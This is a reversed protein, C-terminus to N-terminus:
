GRYRRAGYKGACSHFSAGFPIQYGSSQWLGEQQNAMARPLQKAFSLMMMVAYEAMQDSHIGRANTIAVRPPLDPAPLVSDVGAGVTQILKLQRAGAWLGRPPRFVLIVEIDEIAEILQASDAIM